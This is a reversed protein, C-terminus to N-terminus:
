IDEGLNNYEDMKYYNLNLIMKVKYILMNAFSELIYLITRQSKKM